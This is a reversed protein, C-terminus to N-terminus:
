MLCQMCHGALELEQKPTCDHVRAKTLVITEYIAASLKCDHRNCCPATAVFLEIDLQILSTAWVEVGGEGGLWM